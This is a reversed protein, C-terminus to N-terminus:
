QVKTCEKEGAKYEGHDIEDLHNLIYDRYSDGSVVGDKKMCIEFIKDADMGYFNTGNLLECAIYFARKYDKAM